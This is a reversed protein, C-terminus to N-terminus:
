SVFAKETNENCYNTCYVSGPYQGCTAHIPPDEVLVDKIYEKTVATKIFKLKAFQITSVPWTWDYSNWSKGRHLRWPPDISGAGYNTCNPGQQQLLYDERKWRGGFVVRISNNGPHRINIKQTPVLLHGNVYHEITGNNYVHTIHYFAKQKNSSGEHFLINKPIVVSSRAPKRSNNTETATYSIDISSPINHKHCPCGTNIIIEFLRPSHHSDIHPGWTGYFLRRKCRLNNGIHLWYSITFKLIDTSTFARHIVAAPIHSYKNLSYITDETSPLPITLKEYDSTHITRSCIPDFKTSKTGSKINTDTTTNFSTSDLTYNIDDMPTNCLKNMTNINSDYLLLGSEDKNSFQDIIDYTNIIYVTIILIIFGILIYNNTFNM